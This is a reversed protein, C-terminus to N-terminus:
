DEIFRLIHTVKRNPLVEINLEFPEEAFEVIELGNLRDQVCEEKTLYTKGYGCKIDKIQVYLFNNMVLFRTFTPAFCNTPCNKSNSWAYVMGEFSISSFRKIEKFVYTSCSWDLHVSKDGTIQHELFDEKSDFIKSNKDLFGNKWIPQENPFQVLFSLTIHEHTTLKSYVAYALIRFALLKNEYLKYYTKNFQLKNPFDFTERIFDLECTPTQLEDFLTSSHTLEIKM